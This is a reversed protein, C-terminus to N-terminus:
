SAPVMKRHEERSMYPAPLDDKVIVIVELKVRSAMSWLQWILGKTMRADTM